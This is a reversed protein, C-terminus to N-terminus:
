TEPPTGSSAALAIAKAIYISQLTLNSAECPDVIIPGPLLDEKEM